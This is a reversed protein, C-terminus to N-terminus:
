CLHVGFGLLEVLWLVYDNGRWVEDLWRMFWVCVYFMIYFSSSALTYGPKVIM